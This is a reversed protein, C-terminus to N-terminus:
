FLTICRLSINTSTGRLEFYTRAKVSFEILVANLEPLSDGISQIFNNAMPSSSVGIYMSTYFECISIQELLVAIAVEFGETPEDHDM